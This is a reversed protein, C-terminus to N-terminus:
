NIKLISQSDEQHDGRGICSGIAGVIAYILLIGGITFVWYM